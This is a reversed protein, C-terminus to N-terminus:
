KWLEVLGRRSGLPVPVEGLVEDLLFGLGDDDERTHGGDRGM